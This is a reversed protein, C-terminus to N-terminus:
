IYKFPLDKISTGYQMSIIPEHLAINWKPDTESLLYEVAM